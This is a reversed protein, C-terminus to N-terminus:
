FVPTMTRYVPVGPNNWVSLRHCFVGVDVLRWYFTRKESKTLSPSGIWSWTALNLTCSQLVAQQVWQATKNSGKLSHYSLFPCGGGDGQHWSVCLQSKKKDRNERGKKSSARQLNLWCKSKLVDCRRLNPARCISKNWSNLSLRRVFLAIWFATSPFVFVSRSFFLLQFSRSFLLLSRLRLDLWGKRRFGATAAQCLFSTIGSWCMVFCFVYSVNSYRDFIDSLM